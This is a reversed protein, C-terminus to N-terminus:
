RGTHPRWPAIPAEHDPIMTVRGPARMFMLLGLGILVVLAADRSM